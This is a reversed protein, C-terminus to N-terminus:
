RARDGDDVGGDGDGAEERALEWLERVVAPGDAIIARDALGFIPAVPDTNVAIIRGPAELGGTHQPAGSVGIAVYLRPSITVGTTGIQVEEPAWGADTVVRTAGFGTGLKRAAQALMGVAERTGVGAGAALVVESEVPKTVAAEEAAPMQERTMSSAPAAGLVIPASGLRGSQGTIWAVNRRGIRVRVSNAPPRPQAGLASLPTVERESVPFHAVGGPAAGVAYAFQVGGSAATRLLGGRVEAVAGLVPAELARATHGILEVADSSGALVVTRVGLRRAVEAIIMGLRRQGPPEPWRLGLPTDDRNRAQGADGPGASAGLKLVVSEVGPSRLPVLTPGSECGVAVILLECTASM